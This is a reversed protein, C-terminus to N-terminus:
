PYRVLVTATAKIKGPTPTIGPLKALSATYVKNYSVISNTTDESIRTSGSIMPDWGAQRMATVSSFGACYSYRGANSLVPNTQASSPGGYSLGGGSCALDAWGFFNVSAGEGNKLIIGVGKAMDDATYDDSVLYKVAGSSSDVLGLNQANNYAPLSPQLAVAVSNITATSGVNSDCSLIVNFNQDAIGVGDGANNLQSVTVTQFSVYPTVTTIVCSPAYTFTAAPSGALGIPFSNRYNSVNTNSDKDLDANYGAGYLNIYGNPQMCGKSIGTPAAGGASWVQDPNSGASSGIHTEGNYNNSIPHCYTAAVKVNNADTTSGYPEAWKVLEATVKPLASKLVSFTGDGNDVTAVKLTSQLWTRTFVEGTDAITLKLAVYPFETAYFGKMGPIEYFGGIISDGNTAYVWSLKTDNSCTVMAQNPGLFALEGNLVANYDTVGTALITGVPQLFSSIINVRGIGLSTTMADNGSYYSNTWKCSAYAGPMLMFLSLLGAIYLLSQRIM